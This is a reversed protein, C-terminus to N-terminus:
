DVPSLNNETIALTTHGVFYTNSQLKEIGLGIV